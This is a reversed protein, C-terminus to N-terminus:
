SFILKVGNIEVAKPNKHCLLSLHLSIEILKQNRFYNKRIFTTTYSAKQNLIKMEDNMKWLWFWTWLNRQFGDANDDREKM